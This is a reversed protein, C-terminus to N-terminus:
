KGCVGVTGAYMPFQVNAQWSLMSWGSPCSGTNSLVAMGSPVSSFSSIAQCSGGTWVSGYACSNSAEQKWLGGQCTLTKTRDSSVAVRDYTTNCVSNEVVVGVNNVRVWVNAQCSYLMTLDAKVGAQDTASNCAAGEVVVPLKATAQMIVTPPQTVATQNVRAAAGTPNQTVLNTASGDVSPVTVSGNNTQRGGQFTWQQALTTQAALVSVLIAAAKALRRSKM